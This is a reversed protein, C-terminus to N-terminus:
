KHELNRWEHENHKAKDLIYDDDFQTMAAVQFELYIRYGGGPKQSDCVGAALM